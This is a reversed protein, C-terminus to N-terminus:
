DKHAWNQNIHDRVIGVLRDLGEELPRIVPLNLQIALRDQEAILESASIVRGRPETEGNLTIALVKAGLAEIIQIDRDIPIRECPTDINFLRTPVHQLIVGKTGLPRILDLSLPQSGHSISSQGEVFIVDPSTERDCRVIERVLEGGVFDAPTSDL